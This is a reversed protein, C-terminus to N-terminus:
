LSRVCTLNNQM